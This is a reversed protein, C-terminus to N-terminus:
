NAKYFVDVDSHKLLGGNQSFAKANPGVIYKRIGEQITLGSRPQISSLKASNFANLSNWVSNVFQVIVRDQKKFGVGIDGSLLVGDVGQSRGLQVVVGSTPGRFTGNPLESFPLDPCVAPSWIYVCRSECDSITKHAPPSPLKWRAGDIFLIDPILVRLRDGFAREDEATFFLPASKTAYEPNMSRTM